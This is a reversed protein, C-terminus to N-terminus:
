DDFFWSLLHDVIVYVFWVSAVAAIAYGVILTVVAIKDIITM